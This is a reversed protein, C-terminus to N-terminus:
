PTRSPALRRQLARLAAHQLAKVAGETREVIVAVEANSMGLGFKLLIVQRQPATLQDIAVLLAERTSKEVLWGAPDGDRREDAQGDILPEVPRRARRRRFDVVLNHAIRFLWARFPVGTWRYRPLSELARLFVQGAVDEAEDAMGLHFAVYGYITDVYREYLRGFADVDGGQAARVLAEDVAAAEDTSGGAASADPPGAEGDATASPYPHAAADRAHPLHPDVL